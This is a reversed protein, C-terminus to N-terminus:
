NYRSTPVQLYKKTPPPIIGGANLRGGVFVGVLTSGPVTGRIIMSFKTCTCTSEPRALHCM